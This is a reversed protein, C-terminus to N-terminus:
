EERIAESLNASAAKAAPWIAALAAAPIIWIPMTGIASWPISFSITWGFFAPNVVWTLIVALALGGPIGIITAVTGIMGSEIVFLGHIQRSSAGLARLMGTERQREAVLTTVSLAIGLVAVILAIVRLVETVSFTQDFIVMIRQRLTRNSYVTYDGAAGFRQLFADTVADGNAGPRLYVALSQPGRDNWHQAYLGRTMLIAGQDRTYDRYVGAVAFRQVGTPTLLSVSEGARVGLKRSFSETVVVAEGRLVRQMIAEDERTGFELNGRYRGDIVSILVSTTSGDPRRLSARAEGFGDVSEVGAQETLWRLVEPPIIAGLGVTENASPAIYLDAVVSQNTWRVVTQRFSHIMVTLGITMAIATALSAVTVSNRHISRALRDASLRWLARLSLASATRAFRDVVSSSCAAFAALTLFAAAFALWSPGGHLALWGLAATLTLAGVALKLWPWRANSDSVTHSGQGLASVPDIRAAEDAPIWAGVLVTAFGFAAATLFQWPALFQEHISLLLYLSSVTHEVAGITVRALAVGGFSGLAVGILGYLVAEGLFLMRVEWRTAGLARLIGLETRRRAVSASITNYILFAGVLLSVLSLATLNLQFASLMTQMQLSRQRPPAVSLDAPLLPQIRAAIAEAQKPDDLLLQISSLRGAMGYLEQAWGLDIVAFRPQAAVASDRTDILAIIELEHATANISARLKSGVKLRHRAAFEETIAITNPRGLWADMELRQEGTGVRATAFPASTFIDVGVLRLYEGPLEPLTAVGEISATAAQVGSVAAIKPWLTEDIEGRIELQAKGAVLDVGAAFSQNASQNAIQISLYVAIGLAISLVNLFGLLKHRGVYRLVHWRFISLFQRTM